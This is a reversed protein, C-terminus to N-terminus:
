FKLNAGTSPADYTISYLNFSDKSFDSWKIFNNNLDIFYSLESNIAIQYIVQQQINSISLYYHFDGIEKITFIIDKNILRLKSDDNVSYFSGSAAM